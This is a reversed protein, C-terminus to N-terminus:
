MDCLLRGAGGVPRDVDRSHNRVRASPQLTAHARRTKSSLGEDKRSAESRLDPQIFAGAGPQRTALQPQTRQLVAQVEVPTQSPGQRLVRLGAQALRLSQLVEFRGHRLTISANGITLIGTTISSNGCSESAVLVRSPLVRNSSRRGARVPRPASSALPRGAVPQHVAAVYRRQWAPPRLVRTQTHDM